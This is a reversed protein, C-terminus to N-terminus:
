ERHPPPLPYRQWLAREAVRNEALLSSLEVNREGMAQIKQILTTVAVPLDEFTKTTSTRDEGFILQHIEYLVANLVKTDRRLQRVTLRKFEISHEDVLCHSAHRLFYRLGRSTLSLKSRCNPLREVKVRGARRERALAMLVREKLRSGQKGTDLLQSDSVQDLLDDLWIFPVENQAAAQLVNKLRQHYTIYPM